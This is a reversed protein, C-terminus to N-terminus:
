GSIDHIPNLFRYFILIKNKKPCMERTRNAHMADICHWIKNNYFPNSLSEPLDLCYKVDGTDHRIQREYLPDEM